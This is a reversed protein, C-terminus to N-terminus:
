RALYAAFIAELVPKATDNLLIMNPEGGQWPIAPEHQWDFSTVKAVIGGCGFTKMTVTATLYSDPKARTWSLRIEGTLSQPPDCEDGEEGVRILGNPDGQFASEPLLGVLTMADTSYGLWDPYGERSAIAEIKAILEDRTM